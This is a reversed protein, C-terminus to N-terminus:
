PNDIKAEKLKTEADVVAEDKDYGQEEVHTEGRGADERNGASHTTPGELQKEKSDTLWQSQQLADPQCLTYKVFSQEPNVRKRTEANTDGRRVFIFNSGERNPREPLATHSKVVQDQDTRSHAPDISGDDPKGVEPEAITFDIGGAEPAEPEKVHPKADQHSDVQLQAAANEPVAQLNNNQEAAMEKPNATTTPDTM